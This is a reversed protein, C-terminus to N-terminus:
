RAMELGTRVEAPLMQQVAVFPKFPVKFDNNTIEVGACATLNFAARMPGQPPQFNQMWTIRNNRFILNETSRATLLPYDYLKFDNNEIRINRHVMYGKLLQHNEPAIAIVYNGSGLNYGCGEFTNGAIYVDEVPGSEYWSSADDAILIAHM